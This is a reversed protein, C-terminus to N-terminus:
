ALSEAGDLDPRLDAGWFMCNERRLQDRSKEGAALARADGDRSAQKEFAREHPDYSQSVGSRGM